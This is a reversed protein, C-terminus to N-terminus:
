KKALFSLAKQSLESNPCIEAFAKLVAPSYDIEWETQIFDIKVPETSIVITKRHGLVGINNISEWSLERISLRKVYFVIGKEDFSLRSHFPDSIGIKIVFFFSIFMLSYTIVLALYAVDTEVDRFVHGIPFLLVFILEALWGYFNLKTRRFRVYHHPM